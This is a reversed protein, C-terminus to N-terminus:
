RQFVSNTHNRYREAICYTSRPNESRIQSASDWSTRLCTKPGGADANRSFFIRCHANRLSRARAIWIQMASKNPVSITILYVSALQARDAPDCAARAVVVDQSITIASGLRDVIGIKWV